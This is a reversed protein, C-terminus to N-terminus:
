EGTGKGEAGAFRKFFSTAKWQPRADRNAVREVLRAVLSDFESAAKQDVPQSLDDSPAHYRETLWQKALREQPSGKDFGVKLALAPVGRRIFSYQDSRIFLNRKPEPDGEADVGLSRAASVAEAGLDSEDLGFVTLKKLPFIPLFMDVNLNAVMAKPDVTPHNAFYKSGLLGKEEATVAVFLVSRRLRTKSEKLEAAIDLLTAVGAANDMAGNFIRDGNIPQGVGLHDLHATLVVYEDKLKPDTGPLVAAVNQSVVRDRSVAVEAHLRAPISFHPLAEGAEATSVLEQFTHGTGVLWKDAHAPNVTVAIKQGRTEDLVPDALSMSPMLRALTAREWPIDMHKPNLFTVTGIAGLRRLVASREGASQLHAALPGPIRPPAGSLYVVVKGRVDLGRFDDHAAETSSLGHGVFVLEADIERAPDIRMSLSADEGLKLSDTRTRRVLSLHSHAEDIQRTLLAVPQIFGDTGAPKLGLRAFEAAVYEAAKRHGESGTGRGELRDDALFKVHSWWRAGDTPSAADTSVVVCSAIAAYFAFLRAPKM